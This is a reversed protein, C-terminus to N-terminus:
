PAKLYDEVDNMWYYTTGGDFSVLQGDEEESALWESKAIDWSIPDTEKVTDITDLTLWGVQTTEPYCERVSEEFVEEINVPTLNDKILCEIVWEVGYECGQGALYRMLDDSGCMPCRGTPAEVYCLYCFAITKKLALEELRTQIEKNM